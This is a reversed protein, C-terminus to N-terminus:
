IFLLYISKLFDIDESGVIESEPIHIFSVNQCTALFLDKLFENDCHKYCHCILVLSTGSLPKLLFTQM